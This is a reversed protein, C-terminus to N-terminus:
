RGVPEPETGPGGEPGVVEALLDLSQEWDVALPSFLGAVDVARGRTARALSLEVRKMGAAVRELGVAAAVGGQGAGTRSLHRAFAAALEANAGCQRLAGFAWRHFTDIGREALWPLDEEVRAAMRLLPNDPPRRGLHARALRAVVREDTLRPPRLGALRVQLTFPPLWDAPPDPPFLAEFDEDALVYYGTNHMYGFRRRVPDIMVGLVTTKQHGCRYTLEATDPLWWADVDFAVLNGLALQDTLHEGLPRWVNLEDVEIGYLERLDEPPYTFMRWQEGDFDTGLTFALGAVPDHGLAHLGEIWLDTACNTETWIRERGHLPHNRYTDPDLGLVDTSM